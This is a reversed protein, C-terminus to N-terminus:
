AGSAILVSLGILLGVGWVWSNDATKKTVPGGPTPVHEEARYEEIKGQGSYVKSAAKKVAPKAPPPAEREPSRRQQLPTALGGVIRMLTDVEGGNVETLDPMNEALFGAPMEEINERFGYDKRLGRKFGDETFVVENALGTLCFSKYFNAPLVETRRELYAHLEDDVADLSVQAPELEYLATKPNAVWLFHKMNPRNTEFDKDYSIRSDSDDWGVRWDTQHPIHEDGVNRPVTGSQFVDYGAVTRKKVPVADYCARLLELLEAIFRDEYPKGLGLVIKASLNSEIKAFETKFYEELFGRIGEMFNSINIGTKSVLFQLLREEIDRGADPHKNEFCIRTCILLDMKFRLLNMATFCCAPIVDQTLAEYEMKVGQMANCYDLYVLSQVPHEKALYNVVSPFYQAGDVMLERDTTTM